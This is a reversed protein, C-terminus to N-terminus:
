SRATAVATGCAAAHRVRPRAGGVVEAGDVGVAHAAGEEPERDAVREAGGELEGAGAGELGEGVQDTPPGEAEGGPAHVSSVEIAAQRAAESTSVPPKSGM